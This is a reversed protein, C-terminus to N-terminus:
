TAQAVIKDNLESVDEHLSEMKSLESVGEQAGEHLGDNQEAINMNEDELDLLRQKHKELTDKNGTLNNHFGKRM